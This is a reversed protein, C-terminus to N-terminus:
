LANVISLIKQLISPDFNEFDGVPIKKGTLTRLWTAAAAYRGYDYSLHYGDRCLSLGGNSYDFEPMTDRITQIVTGVPIQAAGITKAAYESARLIRAYMQRQEKQYYDFGFHDTDIEYAWTQHFYLKAQPLMTRVVDALNSLFPEFTNEMGSLQSVQQLTVVDWRELAFADAISIKRDAANGNRQLEYHANNQLVNTWHTELSCGGIYLNVTEMDVGNIMALAHLWKHADESFSNGISLLKMFSGKTAPFIDDGNRRYSPM